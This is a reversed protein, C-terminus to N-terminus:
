LIVLQEHEEISKIESIHFNIEIEKPDYFGCSLTLNKVKFETYPWKEHKRAHYAMIYNLNIRDSVSDDIYFRIKYKENLFNIFDKWKGFNNLYIDRITSDEENYFQDKLFSWDSIETVVIYKMPDTKTADTTPVGTVPRVGCLGPCATRM